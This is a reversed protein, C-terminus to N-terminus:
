KLLAKAQEIKQNAQNVLAQAQELLAIAQSNDVPKVAPKQEPTIPPLSPPPPLTGTGKVPYFVIYWSHSGGDTTYMSHINEIRESEFGLVQFWCYQNANLQVNPREQAPKDQVVPRPKQNPQMGQWGWDIQKTRDVNGNADLVTIFASHNGRNEDPTLHRIGIVKYYNRTTNAPVVVQQFGAAENKLQSTQQFNQVYERDKANFDLMVTGEEAHAATKQFTLWFTTSKYGPAEGGNGVNTLADSPLGNVTVTYTGLAGYMALNGWYQDVAGKTKVTDVGGQRAAQFEQGEIPQGNEDLCKIFMYGNGDEKWQVATLKWYPQTPNDAPKLLVQPELYKLEDDFQRGTLDPGTYFNQMGAPAPGNARLKPPTSKLMSVVPLEGKLGFEKDYWNTFWPGQPEYSSAMVGMQYGAIFWPMSCFYYEPLPHNDFMDITLRSAWYATPKPYRADDGATTGARQGVNYGGETMMVPVSRGAAQQVLNNMYEFARFGTSDNLVNAGANVYQARLKNVDEIPREWVWNTRNPDNDALALYEEASLPTGKDAIGDNPYTLPRGLCYNHVAVVMAEFIDARNKRIMLEFPNGRGGPGFADFLPIIGFPRVKDWADIYRNVVIELWNDPRNRNDWELALDPENGFEMYVVGLKALRRAYDIERGGIFGPYNPHLYVRVVPMIKYDILRKILGLSSGGGDDLVKVWKIKAALLFPLWKTKWEEKGWVSTSPSWHVGRGSDDPPRPYESLKM